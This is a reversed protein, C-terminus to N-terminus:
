HSSKAKQGWIKAPPPSRHITSQWKTFAPQIIPVSLGLRNYDFENSHICDSAVPLSLFWLVTRSCDGLWQWHDFVADFVPPQCALQLVVWLFFLFNQWAFQIIHGYLLEHSTIWVMTKRTLAIVSWLEVCYWRKFENPLQKAHQSFHM